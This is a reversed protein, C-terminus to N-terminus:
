FAFFSFHNHSSFHHSFLQSNKTSSCCQCYCTRKCLSSKCNSFLCFCFCFTSRLNRRIIRHVGFFQIFYSDNQIINGICIMSSHVNCQILPKILCLSKLYIDNLWSFTSSRCQNGNTFTIKTDAILLVNGDCKSRLIRKWNFCNSCDNLM